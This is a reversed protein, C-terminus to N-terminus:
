SAPRAPKPGLAMAARLRTMRHRLDLSAWLLTAIAYAASAEILLAWSGGAQQLAISAVGAAGIFLVGILTSFSFIVRGGEAVSRGMVFAVGASTLEGLLRAALIATLSRDFFSFAVIYALSSGALVSSPALRKTRGTNLMLATFPEGRVLRVYATAGLLIMAVPSTEFKPGFVLPIVTNGLLIIGGSYCAAVIAVGSSATRVEQILWSRVATAHYFRALITSQLFRAFASIPVITALVVVSYVALVKLDFLGAVIFRDGQAAIALGLGSIALPYGYKFAAKFFPSRFNLRYPIPSFLRSAFFVIINQTYVSAIIAAHNRTALAVTILVILSITDAIGIMKLQPWYDFDREAVRPSLHEFSRLLIASAIVAFSMWDDGLSVAAAVIPAACIGILSVALGRAVMLAHASALAEEYNERPSSFAFRYIALDTSLELFGLFATLISVFGLETLSLIRALALMRLFPLGTDITSIIMLPYSRRVKDLVKYEFAVPAAFASRLGTLQTWRWARWDFM